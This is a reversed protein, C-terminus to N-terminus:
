LGPGIALHVQPRHQPTTLPFGLDVRVVGVPSMWRVGFGTGRQLPDRFSMMANGVDYFTALGWTRNFLYTYEVSTVALARGGVVNGLSDRAGLTNYGFGRVSEAGGAFFRASPPLRRFEHTWTYGSELHAELQHHRVFTKMWRAEGELRSYTAASLLARAAVSGMFRLRSGDTPTV